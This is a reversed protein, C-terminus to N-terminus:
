LYALEIQIYGDKITYEATEIEGDGMTTRVLDNLYLEFDEVCYPFRIPMQKKLKRLTDSFTVAVNNMMGTDLYRNSRWYADHLNAFSLHGNPISTNSLKGIEDIVNIENWFLGGQNVVRFSCHFIVFGDKSAYSDLYTPDIDTTIMSASYDITSGEELCNTYNIDTGVFDLNWSEMFSFKERLPISQEYKYAHTGVLATPYVTTLDIGVTTNTLYSFNNRFYKIHEIYLIDDQVLWTVQFMAWLQEMLQQFTIIGKTAPDSTELGDVYIADSKQMIMLYRLDEGSMPNSADKFFQSSLTTCGFETKFYELIDNLRRARTLTRASSGYYSTLNWYIYTEYNYEPYGNTIDRGVLIDVARVYKNYLQGNITLTLVYVFPFASTGKPPPTQNPDVAKAVYKVERFWTTTVSFYITGDIDVGGVNKQSYFTWSDSEYNNTTYADNYNKTEPIRNDVSSTWMMSVPNYVLDGCPLFADYYTVFEYKLNSNYKINHTDFADNIINLDKTIVADINNPDYYRPKITVQCKDDNYSIDRKNFVSVVTFTTNDPQTIRLAATDCHTMAKIADYCTENTARNMIFSGDLKKKFVLGSEGKEWTIKAKNDILNVDYIGLGIVIEYHGTM